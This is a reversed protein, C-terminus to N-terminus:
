RERLRRESRRRATVAREELLGQKVGAKKIKARGAIRGDEIAADALKLRTIGMLIKLGREHEVSHVVGQGRCEGWTGHPGGGEGPDHRERRRSSGLAMTGIDAVMMEGQMHHLAWFGNEFRQRARIKLPRTRWM